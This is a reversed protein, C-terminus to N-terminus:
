PRVYSLVRGYSVVKAPWEAKHATIEPTSCPEFRPCLPGSNSDMRGEYLSIDGTLCPELFRGSSVMKPALEGQYATIESIWCAEFRPWLLGSKSEIRAQVTRNGPDSM